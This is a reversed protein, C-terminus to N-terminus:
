GKKGEGETIGRMKGEARAVIGLGKGQIGENKGNGLRGGKM